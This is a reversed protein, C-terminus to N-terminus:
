EYAVEEEYPAKALKHPMAVVIEMMEEGNVKTEMAKEIDEAVKKVMRVEVDIEEPDETLLYLM